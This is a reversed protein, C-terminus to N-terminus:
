LRMLREMQLDINHIDVNLFPYAILMDLKMLTEKQHDILRNKVFQLGTLVTLQTV